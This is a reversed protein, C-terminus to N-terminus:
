PTGGLGHTIGDNAVELTVAPLERVHKEAHRGIHGESTRRGNNELAGQCSHMAAAAGAIKVHLFCRGKVRNFASAVTM